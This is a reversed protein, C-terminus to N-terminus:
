VLTARRFHLPCKADGPLMQHRGNWNINEYVSLNIELVLETAPRVYKLDWVLM